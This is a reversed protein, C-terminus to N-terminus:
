NEMQTALWQNYNYATLMIVQQTLKTAIEGEHKELVSGDLIM